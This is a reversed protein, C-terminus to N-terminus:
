QFNEVCFNIYDMICDTVSNASAVLLDTCYLQEKIAIHGFNCLRDYVFVALGGGKRKSSEM